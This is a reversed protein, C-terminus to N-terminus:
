RDLWTHCSASLSAFDAGGDEVGCRNSLWGGAKIVLDKAKDDAAPKAENDGSEGAEGNPKETDDVPSDSTGLYSDANEFFRDFVDWIEARTLSPGVKQVKEDFAQSRNVWVASDRVAAKLSNGCDRVWDGIESEGVGRAVLIQRLAAVTQPKGDAGDLVFFRTPADCDREHSEVSLWSLALIIRRHRREADTPERDPKNKAVPIKADALTHCLGGRLTLLWDGFAKAGRNVAVHTQWLFDRWTQEDKSEGRLRLTYARQTTPIDAM